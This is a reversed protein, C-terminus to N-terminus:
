TGVAAVPLYNLDFVIVQIYYFNPIRSNEMSKGSIKLKVTLIRTRYELGQELYSLLSLNLDPELEEINWTKMQAFIEEEALCM